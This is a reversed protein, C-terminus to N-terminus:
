MMKFRVLICTPNLDGAPLFIHGNRVQLPFDDVFLDFLLPRIVSGRPVGSFVYLKFLTGSLWVQQSRQSPFEALQALLSGSIGFSKLIEIFKLHFIEIFTM